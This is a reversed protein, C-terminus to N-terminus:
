AFGFIQTMRFYGMFVDQDVLKWLADQLFDVEAQDVINNEILAPAVEELALPILKRTKPTLLLPQHISVDIDKLGLKKFRSYLLNGQSQFGLMSQLQVVVESLRKLETSYPECFNESHVTEEFVLVGGEKLYDKLYELILQPKDLHSIILRGYILDFQGLWEPNKDYINNKQFEVNTIQASRCNEEAIDLQAQNIDVALVKGSPQVEKALFTTMLGTGCAVDMVKMGTRLGARRLLEHSKEKFIEHQLRLRQSGKAGRALIYNDEDKM